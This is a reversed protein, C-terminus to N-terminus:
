QASASPAFFVIKPADERRSKVLMVRAKATGDPIKYGKKSTQKVTVSEVGCVAGSPTEFVIKLQVPDSDKALTLNASM